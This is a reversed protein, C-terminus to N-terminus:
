LTEYKVVKTQEIHKGTVYGIIVSIGATTFSDIDFARLIVLGLFLVIIIYGTPIEPINM